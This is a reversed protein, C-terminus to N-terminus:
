LRYLHFFATSGTLIATKKTASSAGTVTPIRNSAFPAINKRRDPHGTRLSALSPMNGEQSATPLIILFKQLSHVM